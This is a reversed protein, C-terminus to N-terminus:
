KIIDLANLKFLREVCEAGFKKKVYESASKMLYERNQHYDGAVFDVLGLKILKKVKKLYQKKRKDVISDANVQILGGLDKIEYATDVDIYGYREIHAVIPIYGMTTLEYVIETVDACSQYDLEILIYKGDCVTVAKGEKIQKKYDKEIYFEQGLYLNVSINENKVALKLQNFCGILEAKEARFDGRYHPTLIVDTVGQNACEKLMSLSTEIDKSGDDISPLIHSHVDIM